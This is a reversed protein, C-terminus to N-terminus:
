NKRKEKLDVLTLLNEFVKAVTIPGIGGPTPTFIRAKDACAPDADGKLVGGQESTGADLIIVGEKINEPHILGPEGAGSIILDAGRIWEDINPTDKNVTKVVAGLYTAWVTAPAGVLKGEGIVLARMGAIRVSERHLIEAMAGIVPPLFPLKHEKFQQYATVGLVDVDHSLPFLQLVSTLDYQMPVPLQLVLGDYTRTSSLVCHLLDETTHRKTPDLTEVEVEIGLEQGFRIKREVFSRITKTEEAIILGLRLTRQMQQVRHQLTTRLDRVIANGDITM